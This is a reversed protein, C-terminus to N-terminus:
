GNAQDSQLGVELRHLTPNCAAADDKTMSWFPTVVDGADFTATHTNVTPDAGDLKFTVAGSKAVYVEYTHVSDNTVDDTSDTPSVGGNNINTEIKVDGNDVNMSAFDTYSSVATQFAQSKLRFGFHCDDTSGVTGIDMTLKAYFAHEGVTFQNVLDRGKSGARAMVWQVGDDDTDDCEYNVGNADIEPADVTSAVTWHCNLTLGDDYQHICVSNLAGDPLTATGGYMADDIVIPPNAFDYVRKNDILSELANGAKNQGYMPIKAM